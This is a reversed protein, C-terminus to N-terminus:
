LHWYALQQKEEHEMAAASRNALERRIGDRNMTALAIREKDSPARVGPMVAGRVLGVSSRLDDLMTSFFNM